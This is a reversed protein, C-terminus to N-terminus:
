TEHKSSSILTEWVQEIEDGLIKAARTLSHCQLYWLLPQLSLLLSGFMHTCYQWWKFNKEVRHLGVTSGMAGILCLVVFCRVRRRLGLDTSKETV